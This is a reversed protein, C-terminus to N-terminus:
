FSAPPVRHAPRRGSLRPRPRSRRPLSAHSPPILLASAPPGSKETGYRRVGEECVCACLACAYVHVCLVCAHNKHLNHRWREPGAVLARPLGRFRGAGRSVGVRRVRQQLARVAHAPYQPALGSPDSPSTACTGHCTWSCSWLIWSRPTTDGRTTTGYDAV